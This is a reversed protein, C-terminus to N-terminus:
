TRATQDHYVGVPHKPGDIIRGSELDVQLGVAQALAVWILPIPSVPRKEDLRTQQEEALAALNRIIKNFNIRRGILQSHQMAYASAAAQIITQNKPM